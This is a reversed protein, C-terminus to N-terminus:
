VEISIFRIEYDSTFCCSLLALNCFFQSGVKTSDFGAFGMVAMMDREDDNMAELQTVLLRLTCHNSNVVPPLIMRRSTLLHDIEYLSNCAPM